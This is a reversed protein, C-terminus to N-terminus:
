DVQDDEKMFNVIDHARQETAPTPKIENELMRTRWTVYSEIAKDGLKNVRDYTVKILDNMALVMPNNKQNPDYIRAAFTEAFFERRNTHAYGSVFTGQPHPISGFISRIFD